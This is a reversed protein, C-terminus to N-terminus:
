HPPRGSKVMQVVSTNRIIRPSLTFPLQALQGWHSLVLWVGQRTIRSGIQSIFLAPEDLSHYFERRGQQLYTEIAEGAAGLSLWLHEIQPSQIHIRGARLDLDNLNLSVLASVSLGTELLTIFIARDRSTAPRRSEQFTTLVTHIEEPSLINISQSWAARSCAAGSRAAGSFMKDVLNSDQPRPQSASYGRHHLFLDFKRLTARRRLLTNMRKGHLVQDNLYAEINQPQFDALTPSRQLNGKLYTFFDRLDGRYALLTSKSYASQTELSSLFAQIEAEM